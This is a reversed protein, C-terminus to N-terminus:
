INSLLVQITSRIYLIFYGSIKWAQTELSFYVLSYFLIFNIIWVIWVIIIHIRIKCWWSALVSVFTVKFINTFVSLYWTSSFYIWIMCNKWHPAENALNVNYVKDAPAPPPFVNTTSLSNHIHFAFLFRLSASLHSGHCFM